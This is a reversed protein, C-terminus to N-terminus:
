RLVKFPIFKCKYIVPNSLLNNKFPEPQHYFYIYGDVDIYLPYKDSLYVSKLVRGEPLYIIDIYNKIGAESQVQIIVFFVGDLNLVPSLIPTFSKIDLLLNGSTKPPKYLDSNINVNRINEGDRDFIRIIYEYPHILFIKGSEFVIGGARGTIPIKLEKIFDSPKCFTFLLKGNIDYCSVMDESVYGIGYVYIKGDDPSLVMHEGRRKINFSFQYRGLTDFVIIRSLKIDLVYILEDKFNFKVDVPNLFEGPGSGKGGIERLFEGNQGFVYVEKSVGDKILLNGNPLKIFQEISGIIKGKFTIVDEVKFIDEFNKAKEIEDTDIRFNSNFFSFSFSNEIKSRKFLLLSFVFLACFVFILIWIRFRGVRYILSM